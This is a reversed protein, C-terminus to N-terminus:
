AVNDNLYRVGRKKQWSDVGDPVINQLSECVGLILKSDDASESRMVGKLHAEEVEKRNRLM